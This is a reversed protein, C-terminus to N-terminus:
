GLLCGRREDSRLLGKLTWLDMWVSWELKLM